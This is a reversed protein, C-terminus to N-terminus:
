AVNGHLLRRAPAAAARRSVLRQGVQSTQRNGVLVLTEMDIPQEGDLFRGLSTLTVNSGARLANRVLAVPTL